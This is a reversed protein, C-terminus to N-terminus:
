GTAIPAPLGETGMALLKLGGLGAPDVLMAAQGREGFYALAKRSDGARELETQAARMRDLTRRYGLAMLADRQSVPGWTRLGRSHAREALASFDVPGTIDSSGPDAVLDSVMRHLAYGRVPEPKEGIGFGYDFVFAYGRQLVHAFSDILSVSGESVPLEGDFGLDISPPASVPTSREVLRRDL